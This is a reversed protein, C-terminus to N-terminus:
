LKKSIKPFIKLGWNNSDAVPSWAYLSPQSYDREREEWDEGDRVRPLAAKSRSRQEGSGQGRPLVNWLCIDVM